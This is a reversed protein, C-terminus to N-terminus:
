VIDRILEHVFSYRSPRGRGAEKERLLGRKIAEELAEFGVQEELETMQRLLKWTAQEGLVASARVLERAGSTLRTLRTLVMSRVSPPVLENRTQEETLAMAMEVILTFRWTGDAAQRPVLWQRDRLLKLTEMLIM